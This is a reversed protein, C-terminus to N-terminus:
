IRVTILILVFGLITMTLRGIRPIFPLFVGLDELKHQHPSRWWLRIKLFVDCSNSKLTDSATSFRIAFRVGIALQSKPNRGHSYSDM